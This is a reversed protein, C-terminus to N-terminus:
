TRTCRRSAQGDQSELHSVGRFLKFSASGPRNFHFGFQHSVPFHSLIQRLDLRAVWEPEGAEDVALAYAIRLKFQM